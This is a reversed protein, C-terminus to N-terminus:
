LAPASGPVATMALSVMQAILHLIYALSLLCFSLRVCRIIFKFQATKRNEVLVALRSEPPTLTKLIILNRELSDTLNEFLKGEGELSEAQYAQFRPLFKEYTFLGGHLLGSFLLAAVGLANLIEVGFSGAQPDLLRLLPPLFLFVLGTLLLGVSARRLYHPIKIATM